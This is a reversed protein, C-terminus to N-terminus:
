NMRLLDNGEGRPPSPLPSPVSDSCFRCVKSKVKIKEIFESGYFAKPLPCAGGRRNEEPKEVFWSGSVV